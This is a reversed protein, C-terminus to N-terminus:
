AWPESKQLSSRAAAARPPATSPLTRCALPSSRASLCPRHTCQTNHTPNTTHTHTHHIHTHTHTTHRHRERRTPIHTQTRTVKRRRGMGDRAEEGSYMWGVVWGDLVGVGVPGGESVWCVHVYANMCACVRVRMRVVRACTTLRYAAIFASFSRSFSCSAAAAVAAAIVADAPFPFPPPPSSTGGTDVGTGGGGGGGAFVASSSERRADSWSACTLNPQTKSHSTHSHPPTYQVRHTQISQTSVRTKRPERAQRLCRGSCECM